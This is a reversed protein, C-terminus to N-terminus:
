GSSVELTIETEPMIVTGVTPTVKLITNKPHKESPSFVIVPESKLGRKHLGTLAYELRKGVIDPIQLSIGSSLVLYIDTCRFKQEQKLIKAL